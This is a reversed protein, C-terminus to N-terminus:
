CVPEDFHKKTDREVIEGIGKLHITPFHDLTHLRENRGMKIEGHLHRQLSNYPAIGERDHRDAPCVSSGANGFQFDLLHATPIQKNDQIEPQFFMKSTAIIVPSMTNHLFLNFEVNAMYSQTSMVPPAPKAPEVTAM